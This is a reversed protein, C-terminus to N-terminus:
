GTIHRVLGGDVTITQGTIYNAQPSLLFIAMAAFDAPKGLRKVSTEETFQAEVEEMSLGQIDASKKLVSTIRPTAHYGPALINATLGSEGIERSLSKVFGAIGARMVNSLVLNDIPQKISVSELFLFRGTNRALMTPLLEAALQIKWRMTSRYAQDWDKMELEDVRGTPPGGANFVCAYINRDILHAALHKVATADTLDAAYGEFKAGAAAGMTDLKSKTRAIGVVTAGEALLAEAIARGLGSTAGGVAIVKGELGLDM